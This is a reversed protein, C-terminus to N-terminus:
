AVSQSAVLCIGVFILIVGMIKLLSFTEGLFIVALLSSFLLTAGIAIPYASSLAIKSLILLWVGFSAAYLIAGLGVGLYHATNFSHKLLTLGVCSLVTYYIYLAVPHLFGM